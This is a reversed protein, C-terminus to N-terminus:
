SQWNPCDNIRDLPPKFHPDKLICYVKGNTEKFLCDNCCHTLPKIKKM